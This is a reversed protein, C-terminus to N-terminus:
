LSVANQCNYIRNDRHDYSYSDGLNQSNIIQDCEASYFIVPNFADLEKDIKILDKDLRKQRRKETAKEILSDCISMCWCCFWLCCNSGTHEPGSNNIASDIYLPIRTHSSKTHYSNKKIIKNNNNPSLANNKM